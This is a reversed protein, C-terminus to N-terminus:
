FHPKLCDVTKQWLKKDLDPDMNRWNAREPFGLFEAIVTRMYQSPAPPNWCIMGKGHTTTWFLYPKFYSEYIERLYLYHPIEDKECGPFDLLVKTTLNLVAPLFHLHAHKVSQGVIGHEFMIIPYNFCPNFRFEKSIADRIKRSVEIASVTTLLDLEAMCPIHEKPILLTYGGETIQGLSAAVYFDDVEAIIREEFQTRDCFDCSEDKM